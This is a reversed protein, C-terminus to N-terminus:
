IGQIRLYTENNENINENNIDFDGNNVISKIQKPSLAVYQTNIGGAENKDFRTNKIIIGDYGDNKLNDLYINITEENNKLAMGLGGINAIEANKDEIKYIDTRFQEYADSYICNYYEDELSKLKNMLEFVMEGDKIAEKSYLTKNEFYSRNNNNISKGDMALQFVKITDYDCIPNRFEM